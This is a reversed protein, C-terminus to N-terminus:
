ALCRYAAYRTFAIQTNLATTFTDDPTAVSGSTNSAKFRFHYTTNPLLGSLTTSQLTSTNGTINSPSLSATAGYTNTIGYECNTNTNDGNPNTSISVQASASTINTVSGASAFVPPNATASTLTSSGNNWSDFSTANNGNVANGAYAFTIPSNGSTPATWDFTWSSTGASMTAAGNHTIEAGTAAGNPHQTASTTTALIGSSCSVNFGAKAFGSSTVTFTLPYTSGATYGSGPLGSLSLLTGGNQNGHCSCGGAYGIAGASNASMSVYLILTTLATCVSL